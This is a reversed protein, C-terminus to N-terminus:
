CVAGSSLSAGLAVWAAASLAASAGLVAVAIPRRAPQIGARRGVILGLILGLFMLAIGAGGSLLLFPGVRDVCGHHPELAILLAGPLLTGFLVVAENGPNGIVLALLLAGGVLVAPGAQPEVNGAAWAAVLLGSAAIGTLGPIVFGGIPGRFRATEPPPPDGPTSM